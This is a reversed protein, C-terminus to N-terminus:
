CPRAAVVQGDLREAAAEFPRRPPVLQRGVAVLHQGLVLGIDPLVELVHGLHAVPRPAASGHRGADVERRGLSLRALRRDGDPDEVLQAPPDAPHPHETRDDAGRIRVVVVHEVQQRAARVTRHSRRAASRALPPRHRRRRRGGRGRRRSTSWRRGSGRPPWGSRRRGRRRSRSCRCRARRGLEREVRADRRVEVARHDEHHGALVLRGLLNPDGGVDGDSSARCRWADTSATM